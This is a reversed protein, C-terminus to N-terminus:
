PKLQARIEGGKNANSHVNVYFSGMNCAALQAPTLKAGAPVVCTNDGTKTFPVTVPGNQSAPSSLKEDGRLASNM